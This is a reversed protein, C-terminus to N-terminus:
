PYLLEMFVWGGVLMLAVLVIAAWLSTRRPAPPVRAPVALSHEALTRIQKLRDEAGRQRYRAAAFALIGARRCHEIFAEHRADDAWAEVCRDWLAQAEANGAVGGVKEPDWNAFVLGCRVCAEGRRAEGCKPCTPTTTAPTAPTSSRTAAVVYREACAPCTVEIGEGVVVFALPVIEKCRECQAKV